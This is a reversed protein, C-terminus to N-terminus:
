SFSVSEELSLSRRILTTSSLSSSVATMAPERSRRDSQKTPKGSEVCGRKLSLLQGYVDGNSPQVRIIDSAAKSCTSFDRWARVAEAIKHSDGDDLSRQCPDRCRYDTASTANQNSAVAYCRFCLHNPSIAATMATACARWFAHKLSPIGM